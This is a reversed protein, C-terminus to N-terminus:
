EEGLLKLAEARNEDRFSNTFDQVEAKVQRLEYHAALAGFIEQAAANNRFRESASEQALMQRADALAATDGGGVLRFRSSVLTFDALRRVEDTPFTPSRLLDVITGVQMRPSAKEFATDFDMHKVVRMAMSIEKRGANLLGLESEPNITSEFDGDSLATVSRHKDQLGKRAEAVLKRGYEKEGEKILQYGLRMQDFEEDILLDPRPAEPEFRRSEWLTARKFDEVTFEKTDIRNTAAETDGIWLGVAAKVATDLAALQPSSLAQDLLGGRVRAGIGAQLAAEATSVSRGTSSPPAEVYARMQRAEAGIYPTVSPVMLSLLQEGAAAASDGFGGFRRQTLPDRGTMVTMGANFLPSSLAFKSAANLGMAAFDGGLGQPLDDREYLGGMVGYPKRAIALPNVGTMSGLAFEGNGMAFVPTTAMGAWAPLGGSQSEMSAMVQQPDVGGAAMSYTNILPVASLMAAYHMPRETMWNKTIRAMEYPFSTIASGLPNRSLDKVIKPVASYNQMFKNIQNRAADVTWGQDRLYNFMGLRHINGARGYFAASASRVTGGLGREAGNVMRYAFRQSAKSIKQIVDGQMTVDDLAQSLVAKEDVLATFEKTSLKLGTENTHNSLARDIKDMRTHMTAIQGTPQEVDFMEEIDTLADADTELDPPVSGKKREGFMTEVMFRQHDPTMGSTGLMGEDVIGGTNAEALRLQENVDLDDPLRFKKDRMRRLFSKPLGGVGNVGFLQRYATRRARRGASSRLYGGGTPDAMRAFIERDMMINAAITSPSLMIQTRALATKLFDTAKGVMHLSTGLMEGGLTGGYSSRRMEDAIHKLSTFSETFHRMQNVMRKPVYKGALPGFARGEPLQTFKSGLTNNRASLSRWQDFEAQNFTWRPRDFHSLYRNMGIDHLLTNMRDLTASAPDLLGLVSARETGVPRLIKIGDGLENSGLITGDDTGKQRFGHTEEAWVRAQEASDFDVVERGKGPRDVVVRHRSLSRQSMFESQDMGKVTGPQTAGKEPLVKNAHKQLKGSTEYARFLHPFYPETLRRLEDGDILKADAADKLLGVRFDDSRLLLNRVNDDASGGGSLVRMGDNSDIFEKLSTSKGEAAELLAANYVKKQSPTLAKYEDRIRGLRYQQAGMNMKAGAEAAQAQRIRSNLNGDDLELFRSRMEGGSAIDARDAWARLSRMRDGLDVTEFGYGNDPTFEAGDPNREFAKRREARLKRAVDPMVPSGDIDVDVKDLMGESDLYTRAFRRQMDPLKAPDVFDDALKALDDGPEAIRGIMKTFSGPGEFDSALTVMDSVSLEGVIDQESLRVGKDFSRGDLNDNLRRAVDRATASSRALEAADAAGDIGTADIIASRARADTADFDLRHTLHQLAAQQRSRAVNQVRRWASAIPLYDAAFESMEAMLRGGKAAQRNFVSDWARVPRTGDMWQGFVSNGKLGNLSFPLDERLKLAASPDLGESVMDDMRRAINDSQQALHPYMERKSLNLKEKAWQGALKVFGPASPGEITDLVTQPLHMDDLLTDLERPDVKRLERRFNGVERTLSGIQERRSVDDLGNWSMEHDQVVRQAAAAASNLREANAPVKADDLAERLHKAADADWYALNAMTNRTRSAKLQNSVADRIDATESFLKKGLKSAGVGLLVGAVATNPDETTMKIADRAGASMHAVTSRYADKIFAKSFFGETKLTLAAEKDFEKLVDQELLPSENLVDDIAEGYAERAVEAFLEITIFGPEERAIPGLREAVKDATLSATVGFSLASAVKPGAARLASSNTSASMVRHVVGPDLQGSALQQQLTTLDSSRLTPTVAESGHAIDLPNFGMAGRIRRDLGGDPRDKGLANVSTWRAADLVGDVADQAMQFPVILVEKASETLQDLESATGAQFFKRSESDVRLLAEAPSQTRLNSMVLDPLSETKKELWKDLKSVPVQEALAAREAGQKMLKNWLMPHTKMIAAELPVNPDDIGLMRLRAEDASASWLSTLTKRGKESNGAQGLINNADELLQWSFQTADFNIDQTMNAEIREPPMTEPNWGWSILRNNQQLALKSKPDPAERQSKITAHRATNIFNETLSTDGAELRSRYSILRAASQQLSVLRPDNPPAGANQLDLMRDNASQLLVGVSRQAFVEGTREFEDPSLPSRRAVNVYRFANALDMFDKPSATGRLGAAEMLQLAQLKSDTDVGEHLQPYHRVALGRDLLSRVAEQGTKPLPSDELDGAHEQVVYNISDEPLRQPLPVPGAEAAEEAARQVAGAQGEQEPASSLPPNLAKNLLDMDSGEPEALNVQNQQSPSAEVVNGKLKAQLLELDTPM